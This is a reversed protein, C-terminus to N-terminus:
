PVNFILFQSDLHDSPQLNLEKLWQLKGEHWYDLYNELSVMVKGHVPTAPELKVDPHKKLYEYALIWGEQFYTNADGLKLYVNKKDPLFENTYPLFHPSYNFVSVLQWLLLMPIIIRFARQYQEGCSVILSGSFIFLVPLIMLINKIGLYMTNFLSFVIFIFAAPLLLYIENSSFSFKKRSIFYCILAAAFFIVVPIPLKYLCCVLYYYWVRKGTLREGLFFGAGYSSRGDIGPPTETNFAVYDFGKVYPAPLPIPINDILSFQKQLRQFKMSVFRYEKLPKGTENMLFGANIIVMSVAGILFIEKSFQLLFRGKTIPLKILRVWLFISIVPYLLLLSQKSVQGIGLCIATFILYKVANTKGYKWAYYCTATCLLFSYVDTSVMETHALLNPCLVYFMLSCIGATKGYLATSWKVVIMALMLGSIVSFIRATTVDQLTQQASHKLSPSLLQHLARPLVNIAVVPMQSNYVPFGNVVNKQPHLKLVNVGYQYYNAEDSTVSLRTVCYLNLIFYFALLFTVLSRYYKQFFINM